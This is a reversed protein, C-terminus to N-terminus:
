RGHTSDKLAARGTDSMRFTDNGSHHNALGRSVFALLLDRVPKVPRPHLDGLLAIVEFPAKWDEICQLYVRDLDTLKVKDAM